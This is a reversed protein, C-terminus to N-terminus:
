MKMVITMMERLRSSLRKSSHDFPGKVFPKHSRESAETDVFALNCGLELKALLLHFMLHHKNGMVGKAFLENIVTPSLPEKKRLMWCVKKLVQLRIHHYKAVSILYLMRHFDEYRMTKTDLAKHMEICSACASSIVDLMNSIHVNHVGLSEMYAATHPIVSDDPGLSFTMHLLLPVLKWAELGGAILNSDQGSKGGKKSEAKYFKSVGDPFYSRRSIM